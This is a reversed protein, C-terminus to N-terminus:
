ISHVKIILSFRLICNMQRLITLNHNLLDIITGEFFFDVITLYKKLNHLINFLLNICFSLFFQYFTLNM